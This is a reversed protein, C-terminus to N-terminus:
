QHIWWFLTSINRVQLGRGKGLAEFTERVQAVLDRTPLVILARLRTVIRTSLIQTAPTLQTLFFGPSGTSVEVIPLVYALTKGSGTPASICVDRPTNYPQYLTREFPNTPLLFPLLSTQVTHMIMPCPSSLAIFSSGAFLETIRLVKLRKRMKESLMTGGHEQGDPIPLLINPDVIEADMLAQDLGQMALVSKSPADPRVSLPFLPLTGEPIGIDQPVEQEM